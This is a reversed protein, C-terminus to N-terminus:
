GDEIVGAMHARLLHVKHYCDEGLASPDVRYFSDKSWGVNVHGRCTFQGNDPDVEFRRLRVSGDSGVRYIVGFRLGGSTSYVVFDGIGVVQENIDYMVEIGSLLAKMQKKKFFSEVAENM